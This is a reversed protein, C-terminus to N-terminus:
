SFSVAQGHVPRIGGGDNDVDADSSQMTSLSVVHGATVDDDYVV